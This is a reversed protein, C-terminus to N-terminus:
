IYMGGMATHQKLVRVLQLQQSLEHFQLLLHHDHQEGHQFTGPEHRVVTSVLQTGPECFQCKLNYQSAPM